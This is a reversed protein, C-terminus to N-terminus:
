PSNNNLGAYTVHNEITAQAWESVTRKRCPHHRAQNRHQPVYKGRGAAVEAEECHLTAGCDPSCAIGFSIM